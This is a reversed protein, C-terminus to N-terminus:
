HSLGLLCINYWVSLTAHSPLIVRLSITMIILLIGLTPYLQISQSATLSLGGQLLYHLKRISRRPFGLGTLGYETSDLGEDNDLISREVLTPAIFTDDAEPGATITTYILVFDSM